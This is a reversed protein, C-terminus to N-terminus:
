EAELQGQAKTLAAQQDPMLEPYRLKFDTAFFTEVPRTRLPELIDPHIM